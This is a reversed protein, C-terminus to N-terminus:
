VSKQVTTFGLILWRIALILWRNRLQKELKPEVFIPGRNNCNPWRNETLFIQFVNMNKVRKQKSNAKPTFM